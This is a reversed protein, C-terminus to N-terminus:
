ASALVAMWGPVDPDDVHSFDPELALTADAGHLQLLLVPLFLPALLKWARSVPARPPTAAAFM